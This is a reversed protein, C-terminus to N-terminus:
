NPPLLRFHVASLITGTRTFSTVDPTVCPLLVTCVPSYYAYNSDTDM